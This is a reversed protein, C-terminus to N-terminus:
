AIFNVLAAVAPYWNRKARKSRSYKTEVFVEDIYVLTTNKDDMMNPPFAGVIRTEKKILSALVYTEPETDSPTKEAVFSCVFMKAYPKLRLPSKISYGASAICLSVAASGIMWLHLKSKASESEEIFYSRPERCVMATVMVLVKEAGSSELLRQIYGVPINRVYSQGDVYIVDLKWSSYNRSVFEEFDMYFLKIVKSLDKDKGVKNKMLMYDKRNRQPIIISLGDVKGFCRKFGKIIFVSTAMNSADLVLASARGSKTYACKLAHLCATNNALKVGTKSKRKPYTSHTSM